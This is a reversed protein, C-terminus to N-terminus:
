GDGSPRLASLVQGVYQAFRATGRVEASRDLEVSTVDIIEAPSGGLTIVRDSMCVAEEVNHTVLVITLGLEQRIRLVDQQLQQRLLDDVAALPEDLLLLNPQLALARALSVRMKMGGSLAGPRKDLDQLSLGVLRALQEVRASDVARHELEGPLRINAEATRWPLRTAEQFVFGTRVTEDGNGARVTVHGSDPRLLRAMLRLLTSKGCGSPGVVSVVEGSAINLQDIRLIPIGDFSVCLDTLRLEAGASSVEAEAVANGM